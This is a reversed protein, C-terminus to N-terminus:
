RVAKELLEIRKTLALVKNALKAIFQQPPPNGIYYKIAVDEAFRFFPNADPGLKPPKVKTFGFFAIETGEAGKELHVLFVSQNAPAADGVRWWHDFPENGLILSKATVDVSTDTTNVFSGQLSAPPAVASEPVESVFANQSMSFALLTVSTNPTPVGAVLKVYWKTAVHVTDSDIWVETKNPEELSPVGDLTWFCFKCTSWKNAIKDDADQALILDEAPYYDQPLFTTSDDDYFYKKLQYNTGIERSELLVPTEKRHPPTDPQGCWVSVPAV